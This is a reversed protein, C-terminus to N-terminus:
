LRQHIVAISNLFYETEFPSGNLIKPRINRNGRKKKTKKKNKKLTEVSSLTSYYIYFM